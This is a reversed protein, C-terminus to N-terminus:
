LPSFGLEEEMTLRGDVEDLDFGYQGEPEEEDSESEAQLAEEDDSLELISEDIHDYERRPISLEEDYQLPNPQSAAYDHPDRDKLFINTANRTSKHGVGGGRYRMMM